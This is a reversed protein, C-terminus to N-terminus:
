RNKQWIAGNLVTAFASWLLYPVLLLAAVKSVRWAAVITLAIAANLILIEIFSARPNEWRFFLFSWLLNLMLQISFLQMAPTAAPKAHRARWLISLSVGMMTYLTTWAPAFVWSPPNFSPKDLSTYWDSQGGSGALIAAGAGLGNIGVICAMTEGFARLTLPERSDHSLANPM